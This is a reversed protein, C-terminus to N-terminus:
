SKWKQDFEELTYDAIRTNVVGLAGLIDYCGSIDALKKIDVNPGIVEAYHFEELINQPVDTVDVTTAGSSIKGIVPIKFGGIFM